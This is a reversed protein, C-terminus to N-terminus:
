FYIIKLERNYHKFYYFYIIKAILYNSQEYLIFSKSNFDCIIDHFIVISQNLFSLYLSM